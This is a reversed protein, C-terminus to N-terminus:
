EDEKDEEEKKILIMEYVTVPTNDHKISIPNPSLRYLRYGDPLTVGGKALWIDQDKFATKLKHVNKRNGMKVFVTIIDNDLEKRVDFTHKFKMHSGMGQANGCDKKCKECIYESIAPGAQREHVGSHRIASEDDWELIPSPETFSAPTEKTTM